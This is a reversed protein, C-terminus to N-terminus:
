RSQNSSTQCFLPKRDACCDCHEERGHGCSTNCLSTNIEVEKSVSLHLEYHGDRKILKSDNIRGEITQKTRLPCYIRVGKAIRIDLFYKAFKNNTEIIGFAQENLYLPANPEARSAMAAYMSYIEPHMKRNEVYPKKVKIM